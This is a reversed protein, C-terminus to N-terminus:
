QVLKDSTPYFETDCLSCTISEKERVGYMAIILRFFM